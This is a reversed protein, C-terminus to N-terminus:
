YDYTKRSCIYLSFIIITLQRQKFQYKTCRYCKLKMCGNIRNIRMLLCFHLKCYKRAPTKRASVNSTGETSQFELKEPTTIGSNSLSKINMQGDVQQKCDYCVRVMGDAEIGFTVALLSGDIRIKCCASCFIRGCCRCHHRRRLITFKQGCEYCETCKEDPM